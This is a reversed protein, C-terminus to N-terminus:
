GGQGGGFQQQYNGMYRNWEEQSMGQPKRSNGVANIRAMELEHARRQDDLTGQRQQAVEFNPNAPPAYGGQPMGGGAPSNNMSMRPAGQPPMSYGSQMSPLRGSSTAMGNSDPAFPNGAIGRSFLGQSMNILNNNPEKHAASMLYDRISEQAASQQPSQDPRELLAQGRPVLSGFIAESLRPDVEQRSVTEGGGSSGM